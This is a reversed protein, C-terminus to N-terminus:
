ADPVVSHRGSTNTIERLRYWTSGTSYYMFYSNGTGTTPGMPVFSISVLTDTDVHPELLHAVMGLKNSSAGCM